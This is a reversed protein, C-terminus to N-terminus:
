VSASAGAADEKPKAARRRTGSGSNRQSAEQRLELVEKLVMDLKASVQALTGGPATQGMRHVKVHDLVASRAFESM